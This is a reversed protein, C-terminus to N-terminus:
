LRYNNNRMGNSLVDQFAAKPATFSPLKRNIERSAEDNEDEPNTPIETVYQEKDGGGYIDRDFNGAQGFGVLTGERKAREEQM